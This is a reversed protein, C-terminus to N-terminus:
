NSGRKKNTKLVEGVEEETIEGRKLLEQVIDKPDLGMAASLMAASGAKAKRELSEIESPSVPTEITHITLGKQQVYKLLLFSLTMMTIFADRTMGLGLLAAAAQNGLMRGLGSVLTRSMLPFVQDTIQSEKGITLKDEIHKLLDQVIEHLPITSGDKDKLEVKVEVGKTKNIMTLGFIQEPTLSDPDDMEDSLSKLDEDDFGDDFDDM